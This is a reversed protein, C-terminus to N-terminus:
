HKRSLIFDSLKLLTRKEQSDNFTNLYEKAKNVYKRAKEKSKEIAGSERAMKLIENQHKDIFNDNGLLKDVDLDNINKNMYFLPLTVKGERLDNLHPKGTTEEDSNYDLLDDVLQFGIGLNLGFDKLAKIENEEMEALMGGMECCASFLYATKRKLIDIHEEENLDINGRSYYQIIEGQIMSSTTESLIELFPFKRSELILKISSTYLFDGMLVALGDGWKSNASCDGRRIEAGDIIDDHVLTATHMLELASALLIDQDGEYNGIGASLFHLIPRIRKGESNVIDRSIGRFEPFDSEVYDCLKTQM